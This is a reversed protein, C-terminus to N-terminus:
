IKNEKKLEQTARKIAETWKENPKRIKKAHASIIKIKEGQKSM